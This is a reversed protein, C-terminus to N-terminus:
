QKKQDLNKLHKILIKEIEILVLDIDRYPYNTRMDVPHDLPKNTSTKLYDKVYELATGTYKTTVTADAGEKLLLKVIEIRARRHPYCSSASVACLLPTRNRQYLNMVNIDAGKNILYKVTELDGGDCSRHLCTGFGKVSQHDLRYGSEVFVKVISELKYFAAYNCANGIRGNDHYMDAGKEILLRAMEADGKEVALALPPDRFEFEYNILSPFKNLVRRATKVDGYEIAKGLMSRAVMEGFIFYFGGGCIVFTVGLLIAISITWKYTKSKM